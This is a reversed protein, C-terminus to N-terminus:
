LKCLISISNLNILWLYTNYPIISPHSASLFAVDSARKIYYYRTHLIHTQKHIHTHTYTHTHTDKQDSSHTSFPNFMHLGNNTSRLKYIIGKLSLLKRGKEKNFKKKWRPYRFFRIQYSKQDKYECNQRNRYKIVFFSIFITKTNSSYPVELAIFYIVLSVQIIHKLLYIIIDNCKSYLYLVNTSLIEFRFNHYASSFILCYAQVLSFM